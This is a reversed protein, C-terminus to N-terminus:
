ALAESRLWGFATMVPADTMMFLTADTTIRHSYGRWAPLAVVDGRTWRFTQDGITTEGAGQVACFVQNMTTRLPRTITGSAHREMSLALTPLAPSGLELRRGRFGDPDLKAQGLQADVDEWRFIFPSRKPRSTIPEYEQPHGEYFMPELLHNLPVDLCDLWYCTTKSESGHGHWCWNPTLLVDNPEMDLREGNVVTYAGEGELVLRLANPTHRHSRAIEGPLIAQYACIITRLTDYRNPDAPNYLILNRREALETSILRGAADLAQKGEAWSWQMPVFNERPSAWLSPTPKSWGAQINLQNLRPYLEDLSRAEAVAAITDM